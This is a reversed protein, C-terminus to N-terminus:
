KKQSRMHHRALEEPAMVYVDAHVAVMDHFAESDVKLDHPYGGGMTVVLPINRNICHRVVLATRQRLGDRTLALKGLRDAAYGDVGAQFFVLDPQVDDLLRPWHSLLASLYEDDSTGPPLDIDLDSNQKKSFINAICHMSFTFVRPDDAGM